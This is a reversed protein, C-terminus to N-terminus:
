PTEELSGLELHLRKMAAATTEDKTQASLMLSVLIHFRRDRPPSEKVFLRTCGIVDVPATPNRKRMDRVRNYLDEWDPPPSHHKVTKAKTTTTIEARTKKRSKTVVRKSVVEKEGDFRDQAAQKRKPRASSETEQSLGATEEKVQAPEYRLPSKTEGRSATEAARTASRLTRRSGMSM